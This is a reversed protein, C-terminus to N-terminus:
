LEHCFSLDKKWKVFKYVFEFKKSVFLMKETWDEKSM